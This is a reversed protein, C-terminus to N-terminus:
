FKRDQRPPEVRNGSEGPEDQIALRIRVLAEPQGLDPAGSKPKDPMPMHMSRLPKAQDTVTCEMLATMRIQIVEGPKLRVVNTQNQGDRSIRLYATITGDSNIRPRMSIGIGSTEDYSEWARNNVTSTRSTMDQNDVPCSIETTISIVRPVVDLLVIMQKVEEVKDKPGIISLVGISDHAILTVGKPVLGADSGVIRGLKATKKEVAASTTSIVTM